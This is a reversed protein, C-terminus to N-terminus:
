LYGTLALKAWESTVEPHMPYKAYYYYGRMAEYAMFFGLLKPGEEKLLKLWKPDQVAKVRGSESDEVRARKDETSWGWSAPAITVMGQKLAEGYM